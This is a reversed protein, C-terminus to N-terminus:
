YRSTSLAGASITSLSGASTTRVWTSALAVAAATPEDIIKKVVAPRRARKVLPRGSRRASTRPCRSSPM